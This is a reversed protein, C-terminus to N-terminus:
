KEIYKNNEFFEEINHIVWTTGSSIFGDLMISFSVTWFSVTATSMLVNFPTFIIGVFLFFDIASLIAGVWFPWCMMCSFLEGLMPHIRDTFERWKQFMHFPGTSYIVMNSIGYCTFIFVLFIFGFM